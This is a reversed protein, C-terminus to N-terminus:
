AEPREVKSEARKKKQKIELKKKLAESVIARMRDMSGRNPSEENYMSETLMEEILM